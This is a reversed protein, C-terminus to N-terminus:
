LVYLILRLVLNSYVASVVDDLMVGWGGCVTQISRAPFPKVIDLLRNLIFGIIVGAVTLRLFAFTIMTSVAEDIVILSSDKVGLVSEAITGAYVGVFFLVIMTVGYLVPHRVLLFVPILGVAAGVTGPAFPAYGAGGCSAVILALKKIGSRM